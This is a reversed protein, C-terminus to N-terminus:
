DAAEATAVLFATAEKLPPLLERGAICEEYREAAPNSRFKPLDSLHSWRNAVILSLTGGSQALATLGGQRQGVPTGLNERPPDARIALVSPPFGDPVPIEWAADVSIPVEQHGDGVMMSVTGPIAGTGKRLDVGTPRHDTEGRIWVLGALARGGDSAERRDIYGGGDLVRFIQDARVLWRLVDRTAEWVGGADARDEAQELRGLANTLAALTQQLDNDGNMAKSSVTAASGAPPGGMRRPKLEGATSTVKKHGGDKRVGICLCSSVQFGIRLDVIEV